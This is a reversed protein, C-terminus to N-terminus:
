IGHFALIKIKQTCLLSLPKIYEITPYWHKAADDPLREIAQVCHLVSLTYELRSSRRIWDAAGSTQDTRYDFKNLILRSVRMEEKAASILLLSLFFRYVKRRILNLSRFILFEYDVELSSWSELTWTPAVRGKSTLTAFNKLTSSKFNRFSVPVNSTHRQSSDVTFSNFKAVPSEFLRTHHMSLNDTTWWRMWRNLSLDAKLTRSCWWCGCWGFREVGSRSSNSAM